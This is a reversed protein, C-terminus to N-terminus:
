RFYIAFGTFFSLQVRSGVVSPTASCKRPLRSTDVKWNGLSGVALTGAEMVDATLGQLSGDPLAGDLVITGRAPLILKGSVSLASLGSITVVANEALTLDGAFSVSGSVNRVTLGDRTVVRGAGTISGASAARPLTATAGAAVRVTGYEGGTVGAGLWKNRLYAEVAAREAESTQNTFVIVEALRQGGMINGRDNAFNGATAPTGDKTRLHLVHFGSPIATATPASVVAGDCRLTGNRIYDKTNGSHFYPCTTTSYGRHFDYTGGSKSDGLLFTGPTNSRTQESWDETDSFVWFVERIADEMRFSWTLYAGYGDDFGHWGKGVYKPSGFDVVPLGNLFNARVFPKAGGEDPAAYRRTLGRVCQWQTVLPCGGETQGSTKVTGAAAADVHFFSELSPSRMEVSLSGAEVSINTASLAYMAMDSGSTKAFTDTGSLSYISAEGRCLLNGAVIGMQASAAVVIRGSDITIRGSMAAGETVDFEGSIVNDDGPSSFMHGVALPTACELRATGHLSLKNVRRKWKAYLRAELATRTTDDLLSDFVIVEQLRQGGSRLNREKAFSGATVPGATRVHVLHFGEPLPDFPGVVARDLTITGNTVDSSPYGSRSSFLAHDGYGRHFDHTSDDTLLFPKVSSSVRADETDSVVMFVERIDAHRESWVLFCGTSGSTVYRGMDVWPLAGPVLFPQTSEDTNAAHMYGDGRVDRWRAVRNTGDRMEADFSGPEMADLHFMAGAALAHTNTGVSPALFKLSVSQNAEIYAKDDALDTIRMTGAGYLQCLTDNEAHDTNVGYVVVDLTVGANVTVKTRADVFLNSIVTDESFTVPTGDLTRAEEVIQAGVPVILGFALLSSLVVHRRDNPLSGRRPTAASAVEGVDFWVHPNGAHSKGQTVKEKVTIKRENRWNSDPKAQRVM